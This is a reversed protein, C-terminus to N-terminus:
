QSLMQLNLLLCANLKMHIQIWKAFLTTKHDKNQLNINKSSLVHVHHYEGHFNLYYKKTKPDYRTPKPIWSLTQGNNEFTSEISYHNVSGSEVYKVEFEDKKGIRITNSEGTEKQIILCVHSDRKRIHIEAGEVIFIENYKQKASYIITNDHVFKWTPRKCAHSEFRVQYVVSHM